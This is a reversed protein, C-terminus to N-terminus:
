LPCNLHQMKVMYGGKGKGLYFKKNLSVCKLERDM